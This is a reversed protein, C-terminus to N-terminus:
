VHTFFIWVRTGLQWLASLPADNKFRKNLRLQSKFFVATCPSNANPLGESYEPTNIVVCVGEIVVSSYPIVM